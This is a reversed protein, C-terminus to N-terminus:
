ESRTLVEATQEETAGYERLLSEMLDTVQDRTYLTNIEEQLTPTKTGPRTFLADLIFWDATTQRDEIKMDKSAELVSSIYFSHPFKYGSRASSDPIPYMLYTVNNRDKFGAENMNLYLQRCFKCGPDIIELATPKTADFPHAYTPNQALFDTAEWRSLRAPVRSVTDALQTFPQTVWTGIQGSELAEEFTLAGSGVGCAQGSLSCSEGTVPDCTDYVLLNLGAIATYVLSWISLVVFLFALVDFSKDVWATMKPYKFLFSGFLTGKIESKLDIDCARFTIRNFVCGFSKRFLRRYDASFIGLVPYLILFVIFAIICFM